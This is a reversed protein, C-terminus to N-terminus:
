DGDSDVFGERSSPRCVSSEMTLLVVVCLMFLICEVLISFSSRAARDAVDTAWPKMMSAAKRPLYLLSKIALCPELLAASAVPPPPLVTAAAVVLAAAASEVEEVVVESEVVDVEAAAAGVELVEVDASEVVVVAGAWCVVVLAAGTGAEVVVLESRGDAVLEDASAEDVDESEDWVVDAESVDVVAVGVGTVEVATTTTVAESPETLLEVERDTVVGVAPRVWAPLPLPLEPMDVVVRLVMMPTTTPTPPAITSATAPIKAQRM